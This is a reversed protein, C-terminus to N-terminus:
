LNKYNHHFTVKDDLNSISYKNEFERIFKEVDKISEVNFSLIITDEKAMKYELLQDIVCLSTLMASASTLAEKKHKIEESVWKYIFFICFFISVILAETM